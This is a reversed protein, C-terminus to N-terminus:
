KRCANQYLENYLSGLLRSIHESSFCDKVRIRAQTGLKLLLDRDAELDCLCSVMENINGPSFLLGTKNDQIADVLGSIRSGIAPIGLAAADLIITGFGERYSPLCLVDSLALYEDHNDVLNREVVYKFLEPKYSRLSQIEGNSEDPGIFLLRMNPYIQRAEFFGALMDLAGKDRSKRAIYAIVFNHEELGLGARTLTSEQRIRKLNFRNLDVGVLSGSGLVPLPLGNISIGNDFIHRSQSPSDTLCITNLKVIVIDILQYIRRSLGFKTDWVQGTFTHMRVPVRMIWAALAALLGAKPMISHVIDPQFRRCVACLIFLAKLDNLLHPKRAIPLDFWSVDTFFDKNNSVCSGAVGFEFEDALSRLNNSMHWIVTEASTVVRLVRIKNKKM